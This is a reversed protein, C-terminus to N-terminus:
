AHDPSAVCPSDRYESGPATEPRNGASARQAPLPPHRPAPLDHPPTEQYRRPPGSQITPRTLQAFHPGNTAPGCRGCRELAGDVVTLRSSCRHPRKTVSRASPRWTSPLRVTVSRDGIEAAFRGALGVGDLNAARDTSLTIDLVGARSLCTTARGSEANRRLLRPDPEALVVPIVHLSGGEASRSIPGPAKCGARKKTRWERM